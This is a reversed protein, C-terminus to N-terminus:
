HRQHASAIVSACVTQSGNQLFLKALGSLTSGTTLVDDILMIHAPPTDTLAFAQNLNDLRELRDLSQQRHTDRHRIVGHWLPIQWIQGLAQTLLQAHNFGRERLRQNSMPVAVLADVMPTSLRHAPHVLLPLLDLRSQYKFLHILRDIPWAYDFLAQINIQDVDIPHSAYPLDDLCGQCVAQQTLAPATDCLQCNLQNFM